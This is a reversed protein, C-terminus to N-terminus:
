CVEIDQIIFPQLGKCLFSTSAHRPITLASKTNFHLVKNFTSEPSPNSVNIHCNFIVFYSINTSLSVVHNSQFHWTSLNLEPHASHASLTQPRWPTKLRL